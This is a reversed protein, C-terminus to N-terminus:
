DDGPHDTLTLLQRIAAWSVAAVGLMVLALVVVFFAEVCCM